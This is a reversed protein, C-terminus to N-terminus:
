QPYRRLYHHPLYWTGLYKFVLTGVNGPFIGSIEIILVLFTVNRKIIKKYNIIFNRNVIIIYMM